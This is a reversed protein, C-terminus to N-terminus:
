NMFFLEICCLWTWLTHDRCAFTIKAQLLPLEKIIYQKTVSRTKDFHIQLKLRRILAKLKHLLDKFIGDTRTLLLTWPICLIHAMKVKARTIKPAPKLGTQENKKLGLRTSYTNIDAVQRDGTIEKDRSVTWGPLQM